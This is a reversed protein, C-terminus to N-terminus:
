EECLFPSSLVGFECYLCSIFLDLLLISGRLCSLLDREEALEDILTTM